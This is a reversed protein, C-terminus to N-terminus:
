GVVPLLLCSKSRLAIASCLIYVRTYSSSLRVGKIVVQIPISHLKETCEEENELIVGREELTKTGSVYSDLPRLLSQQTSSRFLVSRLHPLNSLLGSLRDRPRKRSSRRRTPARKRCEVHM